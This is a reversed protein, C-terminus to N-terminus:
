RHLRLHSGRVPQGQAALLPYTVLPRGLVPRLNKGPLGTSGKRGLLLAAIM